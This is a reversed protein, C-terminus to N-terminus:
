ATKKSVHLSQTQFSASKQSTPFNSIQKCIQTWIKHLKEEWGWKLNFNLELM